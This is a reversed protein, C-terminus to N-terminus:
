EREFINIIKKIRILISITFFNLKDNILEKIKILKINKFGYIM